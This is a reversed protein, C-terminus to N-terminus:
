GVQVSPFPLPKRTAWAFVNMWFKQWEPVVKPEVTVPKQIVKPQISVRTISPIYYNSALQKLHPEYTDYIKFPFASNIDLNYLEVEHVPNAVKGSYTVNGTNWTFPNTEIPIGIQMAGEKLYTQLGVWIDKIFGGPIQEAKIDFRKAFEIGMLEMEKTVVNPDFYENNFEEQSTEDAADQQSYPLMKNPILGASAAYKWFEIPYNGADKVGSLVGVWRRSFYVDGDEDIYGNDELWKWHEDPILGLKRMMMIRTEAVECASFNWCNGTDFRGYKQTEFNGFYPSSDGSELIPRYPLTGQWIGKVKSKIRLLSLNM